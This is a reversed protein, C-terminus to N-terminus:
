RVARVYFGRDVPFSTCYGFNFYVVWAISASSKDATWIWMQTKDFVPDNYLRGNKREREMLSMAEELTPLRWGDFGAYKQANITDIYANANEFTKSDESGSQQWTLGSVHDYIVKGNEQAEFRNLYGAGSPNRLRDYFGKDRLLVKVSEESLTEEATHRLPSKNGKLASFQVTDIKFHINGGGFDASDLKASDLRVDTLNAGRLNAGSLNATRLDAEVLKAGELHAQRLDAKELIAGTFDAGQLRANRLNVWFTGGSEKNVLNQYSLDVAPWTGILREGRLARPMFFGFFYIEFVLVIALLSRMAGTLKLPNGPAQQYQMWFAIVLLTGLLPMIGVVVSLLPDHKKLYWAALLMLVMPLSWWLSFNVIFRQTRAVFGSGLEAAFNLMWPYIEREEAIPRFNTRLDDFLRKLKHLYLQCYVFMFIALFPALIFFGDLPVDLNIVPLRAPENLILRRDSTSAVTLATYALLGVFLLYISRANRSAEAINALLAPPAEPKDDTKAESITESIKEARIVITGSALESLQRGKRGKIRLFAVMGLFLFDLPRMIWRVLYRDFRPRSGDLRVVKIQRAKMGPTQGKMSIKFLLDYFVITLVILLFLVINFAVHTLVVPWVLLHSGTIVLCDILYALSRDKFPAIQLDPISKSKQADAM